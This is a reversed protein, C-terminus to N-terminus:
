RVLSFVIAGQTQRCTVSILDNKEVSPALAEFQVAQAWCTASGGPGTNLETEEDLQLTFWYVWGHITGKRAITMEIIRERDPVDRTFDFDLVAIPEALLAYKYRDIAVLQYSGHRRSFRNFHDLNFGCTNRNDVVYDELIPTSEIPAMWVIAGRPIVVADDRLLHNRAHSFTPLVGEGLLSADLIESVLLNARHPLHKGVELATSRLDHVTVHSALGNEAVIDKAAEVIWPNCDCAVVRSAGARAAMMALLGSGTGIDLVSCGGPASSLKAVQREIAKKYAENRGVDNVMPFHWNPILRPYLYAMGHRVRSDGPVLRDAERYASLAEGHRGVGHLSDALDIWADALDPKVAVVRFLLDIGQQYDGKLRFIRSLNLLAGVHNPQQSIVRELNQIATSVEGCQYQMGGLTARIELDTPRVALYRELHAVAEVLRSARRLANALRPLRDLSEPALSVALTLQEAELAPDGGTTNICQAYHDFLEAKMGPPILAVQKENAVAQKAYVLAEVPDRQTLLVSLCYQAGLHEHDLALSERYGEEASALRGELHDNRARDFCAALDVEM